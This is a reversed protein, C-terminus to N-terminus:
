KLLVVPSDVLMQSPAVEELVVDGLRQLVKVLSLLVALAVGVGEIDM